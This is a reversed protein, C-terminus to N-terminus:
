KGAKQMRLKQLDDLSMNQLEPHIGSGQDFGQSEGGVTNYKNSFRKKFFDSKSKAFTRGSESNLNSYGSNLSDLEKLANDNSVNGIHHAQDIIHNILDRSGIDHPDASLRQAAAAFKAPLSEYETRNVTADSMHNPSFIRAIAANADGLQQSTILPKGNKDKTSLAGEVRSIDEQLNRFPKMATEYDKSVQVNNRDSFSDNRLRSSEAMGNAKAQAEGLGTLSKMIPSTEFINHVQLGTQSANVHSILDNLPTENGKFLGSGRLGELFVNAQLKTTKTEPSNPDSLAKLQANKQDNTITAQQNALEKSKAEQQLLDSNESNKKLNSVTNVIGLIGELPSKVQGPMQIAVPM